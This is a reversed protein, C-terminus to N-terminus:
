DQRLTAIPDTRAARWAPIAAALACAGVIVVASGTYALPDFVHVIASIQAAAPTSMLATALAGALGAGIVLGVGVPRLSQSLVLAAVSRTTAGLAMRVGIEKRRQEVVYSLVSFLGSLTLVLALAGVIFTLWFGSQLLYTEMRAMTRMTIVQGMNPDLTTLRQLLARRAHEPDGVVRATLSTKAISSNTPLYVGAEKFSTLRFGAVDRAVGVVTFARRLLPPEDERRTESNLDPVELRLEQGVADANPWLQRATTESVVAVGANLAREAPTFGRGRLVDIDLVDFYEPSVFKYVVIAKSGASEASAERPRGLTDPWSAAVASVAPEALVAQVMVPRLSDNVVDILVTDTTRMGPDVTASALASRLFVAACILLLTSACVQLGILVNRTRGPRSNRLIEGRMARVLELRTAQLAPALGFLISSVVAAGILFAWVRWDTAPTSLTINEALEPALTNVVAYVSAEILVRSIVFGLAASVLALLLSETLLQRVIRRRSAGLSMRIGVERQRSAARALLLNAVNACGIMLILGFVFFLPTFILLAEGLHLAGQRADLTINATRPDSPGDARGIDWAALGALAAQRSMGPKLRAVIDIGVLHERGLHIPRVQGLLSLPAWYDPPAVDLGRFGATTVGVIQYSFGNVILTRGVASPDSAFLRSWGRHSLVVVPRPASPEDDLPTLVRGLAADAGLVQFFNGTVLTGAMMRGDIRSDIDSMEAYADAFVHNDRRLAEFEPRTFRVREGQAPRPREVAYLEDPNRVEDARFVFTNFITFGVAVLGLGLAVTAVITFAALPARRFTRIAYRVDRVCGDVFTIGRVDRCQEAALPVNGFRALARARAEAPSLGADTHKRTEREVHFSLEEGLEHEVRRPAFLARVRLKLDHFTM